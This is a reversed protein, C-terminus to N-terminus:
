RQKRAEAILYDTVQLARDMTKALTGDTYFRGAVGISPVGDIKFANQMQVAKRSKASSSSFPAGCSLAPGSRVGPTYNGIYCVVPRM